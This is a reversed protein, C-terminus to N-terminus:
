QSEEGEGRQCGAETRRWCSRDLLTQQVMPMRLELLVMQVTPVQLLLM